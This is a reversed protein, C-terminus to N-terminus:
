REIMLKVDTGDITVSKLVRVGNEDPPMELQTGKSKEPLSTATVKVVVPEQETDYNWEESYAVDRVMHRFTLGENGSKVEYRGSKLLTSGVRVDESLM